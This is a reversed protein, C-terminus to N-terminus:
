VSSLAHASMSANHSGGDPTSTLPGLNINSQAALSHVPGLQEDIHVDRHADTSSIRGVAISCLPSFQYLGIMRGCPLAASNSRRRFRASRKSRLPLPIRSTARIM